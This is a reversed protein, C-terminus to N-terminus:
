LENQSNLMFRRLGGENITRTLSTTMRLHGPTTFKLQHRLLTHTQKTTGTAGCSLLLTAPRLSKGGRKIYSYAGDAIHKPAFRKIYDDSATIMSSIRENQFDETLLTESGARPYTAEIDLMTCFERLTQCFPLLAPTTLNHFKWVDILDCDLTEEHQRSRSKSYGPEYQCGM